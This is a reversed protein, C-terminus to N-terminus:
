AHPLLARGPSRDHEQKRTRKRMQQMEARAKELESSLQGVQESLQEVRTDNASVSHEPPAAPAEAQARSREQKPTLQQPHIPQTPQTKRADTEEMLEDIMKDLAQATLPLDLQHSINTM